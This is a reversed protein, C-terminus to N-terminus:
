RHIFTARGAPELPIGVEERFWHEFEAFGPQEPLSTVDREIFGGYRATYIALRRIPSPSRIQHWRGRDLLWYCLLQDMMVPDLRAARVAKLEILTDGAILDADGGCKSTGMVPNMKLPQRGAFWAFPVADLLRVLEDVQEDSASDFRLELKGARVFAELAALHLAAAACGRVDSAAPSESRCYSDVTKRAADLCASLREQFGTREPEPVNPGHHKPLILGAKDAVWSRLRSHRLFRRHLEFRLLYDFASGIRGAWAGDGLHHPPSEVRISGLAKYPPSPRWVRFRARVDPRTVFSTVNDRNGELM